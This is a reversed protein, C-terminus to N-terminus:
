HARDLPQERHLVRHAVAEVGEEVVGPRDVDEGIQNDAALPREGEDGFGREPRDRNVGVHGGAQEDNSSRPAAVPESASRTLVRGAVM